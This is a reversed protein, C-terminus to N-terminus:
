LLSQLIDQAIASSLTTLIQRKNGNREKKRHRFTSRRFHPPTSARITAIIQIDVDETYQKNGSLGEAFAIWGLFGRAHHTRNRLTIKIVREPPMWTKNEGVDVEFHSALLKATVTDLLIRDATKEFIRTVTGSSELKLPSGREELSLAIKTRKKLLRGADPRVAVLTPVTTNTDSLRKTLAEAARWAVSPNSDHLLPILLTLAERTGINGLAMVGARRINPNNDKLQHALVEVASADKLRGLALIVQYRREDRPKWRGDLRTDGLIKILIGTSAPGITVMADVIDAYTFMYDEHLASALYPIASDGLEVFRSWGREKRLQRVEEPVATRSWGMRDLAKGAPISIWARKDEFALVLARNGAPGMRALANAAAERTRNDNDKLKDSLQKVIQPTPEAVQGLAKVYATRWSYDRSMAKLIPQAARKDGIMGLAVAAAPVALKDDLLKILAPVARPDGLWGLSIAAARRVDRHQDELLRILPTVARRDGIKALAEAARQRYQFHDDDLFRVLDPVANTNGVEGLVYLADWQAMRSDSRLEDLAKDAKTDALVCAGLTVALALGIMTRFTLLRRHDLNM